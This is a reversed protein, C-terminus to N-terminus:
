QIEWRASVDVGYAGGISLVRERQRTAYWGSLSWGNALPVDVRWYIDEPQAINIEGVAQVNGFLQKEVQLRPDSSYDGRPDVGTVVDFRDIVGLEKQFDQAAQSTAL